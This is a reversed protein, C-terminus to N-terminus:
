SDLLKHAQLTLSFEDDEDPLGILVMTQDPELETLDLDYSRPLTVTYTEPGGLEAPKGDTVTFSKARTSVEVIKARLITRRPRDFSKDTAVVRKAELVDDGNRYGMVIVYDDIQIDKLKVTKGKRVFTTEDGTSAMQELEGEAMITLTENAIDTLQGVIATRSTSGLVQEAEDSKEEAAKKLRDQLSQRVEDETVESSGTAEQALASNSEALASNSKALVPLGSSLTFLIFLVFIVKKM